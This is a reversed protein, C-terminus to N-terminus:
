YQVLFRNKKNRYYVLKLVEARIAEVTIDTEASIRKMYAERAVESDIEALVGAAENLFSIKQSLDYIDYQKRLRLLKYEVSEHAEKLLARFSEPGNKLIYEDPDKAGTFSVVKVVNGAETLLGIAKQAAKQGAEDGDYCVYVQSAYRKLLRAQEETLATGLGAVVNTIGRQYLSVVDMNGEVLIIGEKLGSQKALNLAFLNRGKHFVPTEPSNMYKAADDGLLVYVENWVADSEEDFVVHRNTVIINSEEGAKGVCFGSGIGFSSPNNLDDTALIRVVGKKADSASKVIATEDVASAQSWWFFFLVLVLPLLFLSSRKEKRKKVRFASACRRGGM